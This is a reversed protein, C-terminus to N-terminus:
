RRISQQWRGTLVHGPDHILPSTRTHLIALQYAYTFLVYMKPVPETASLPHWTLHKTNYQM